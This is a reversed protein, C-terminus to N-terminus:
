SRDANRVQYKYVMRNFWGTPVLSRATLIMRSQKDPAYRLKEKGDTAAKYITKAVVEPESAKKNRKKMGTLVTEELDDYGEIKENKFVNLSRKHFDTKTSAPEILKVGINFQKLEYQLAESFGELAWKSSSYMTYLPVTLRGVVSSVNIILGNGQKRFVPIAERTLSIVGFVNVEFQQRVERDTSKELPGVAGYGANNLLVDLRSFDKLVSPIISRIDEEKTVDLKYVRIGEIKKLETEEEPARMSAAVNWGKEAFFKATARGIGSSAGTILITKKM